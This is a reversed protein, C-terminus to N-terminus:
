DACRLASLPVLPAPLSGAVPPIMGSREPVQAIGGMPGAPSALLIPITAM